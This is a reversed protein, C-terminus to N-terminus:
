IRSRARGRRLKGSIAHRIRGKRRLINGHAARMEVVRRNQPGDERRVGFRLNRRKEHRRQGVRPKDAGPLLQPNGRRKKGQAFIQFRRSRLISLPLFIWPRAGARRIERKRLNERLRRRLFVPPSGQPTRRPLIGGQFAHPPKAAGEIERSGKERERLRIAPSLRERARRQCIRRFNDM